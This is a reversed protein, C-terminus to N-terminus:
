LMEFKVILRGATASTPKIPKASLWADIRLTARTPPETTPPAPVPPKSPLPPEADILLLELVPLTEPPAPVPPKAPTMVSPDMVLLTM